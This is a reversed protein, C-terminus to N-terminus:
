PPEQVLQLKYILFLATVQPRGEPGCILFVLSEVQTDKRVQLVECCKCDQFYHLICRTWQTENIQFHGPSPNYQHLQIWMFATYGGYM